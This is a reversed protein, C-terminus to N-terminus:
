RGKITLRGQPSFGEVGPNYMAAAQTSPMVFDGECVARAYYEFRFAGPYVQDRFALVRDGRIEFHSPYFRLVGDPNLYDYAEGEKEPAPEETKLASNLAVLGAPLPDDLVVYRRSGQIDVQLSVKVLDGVRIVESGDTNQVTKALKFGKDVGQDKLDLRPYRLEVQYLWTRPGQGKLRVEPRSLLAPVDLALGASGGASWSLEQDPRGPQSVTIKGAGTDFAAGKYFSGLALLAWGTDSTSTWIGQSGLGGLLSAAAQQTLRDGPM